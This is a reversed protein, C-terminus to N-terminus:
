KYRSTSLKLHTCETYSVTGYFSKESISDQIIYLFVSVCTRESVSVFRGLVFCGLRLVNWYLIEWSILDKSCFTGVAFQGLQLIVWAEFRGLELFYWICFTRLRLVNFLRLIYGLSCLSCIYNIICYMNGTHPFDTLFISKQHFIPWNYITTGVCPMLRFLSFRLARHM